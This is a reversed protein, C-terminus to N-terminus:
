PPRDPLRLRHHQDLSRRSAALLLGASAAPSKDHHPSFGAPTTSFTFSDAFFEEEPLGYRSIFDQRAADIM